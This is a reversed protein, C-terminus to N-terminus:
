NSKVIAVSYLTETKYWRYIIGFKPYKGDNWSAQKEEKGKVQKRIKCDVRDSRYKDVVYACETDIIIM